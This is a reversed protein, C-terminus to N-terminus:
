RLHFQKLLLLEARVRDLRAKIEASSRVLKAEDEDTLAIGEGPLIDGSRMSQRLQVVTEEVFVVSQHVTNFLDIANNIMFEAYARGQERRAADSYPSRQDIYLSLVKEVIAEQSQGIRIRNYLDATVDSQAALIDRRWLPNLLKFPDTYLRLQYVKLRQFAAAFRVELAEDNLEPCVPQLMAHAFEHILTYNSATDRILITTQDRACDSRGAHIVLGEYSDLFHAARLLEPTAPPLGALLPNLPRDSAQSPVRLLDVGWHRITAILRDPRSHTVEYVAEMNLVQGFPFAQLVWEPRDARAGLPLLLM